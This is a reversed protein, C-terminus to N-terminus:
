STKVGFSGCAIIFFSKYFGVIGFFCGNKYLTFFQVNLDIGLFVVM